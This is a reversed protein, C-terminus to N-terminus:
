RWVVANAYDLSMVKFLIYRPSISLILIIIVNQCFLKLTLLNSRTVYGPDTTVLNSTFSVALIAAKLARTHM